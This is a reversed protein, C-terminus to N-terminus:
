PVATTTCSSSPIRWPSSISHNARTSSTVLSALTTSKGSGTPGTVLVLGRELDTFSKVSEPIGLSDFDPIEHPIPRLAVAVTGRQMSVNVRFRGVGPISHSTDLEHEAEFREQQTQPLIGFIMDRITQNSLRGYETLPRIAGNVRICPPMQATLHLDSAGQAVTEKLLDDIHLPLEELPSLSGTSLDSEGAGSLVKLRRDQTSTGADTPSISTGGALATMVMTPPSQEYGELAPDKISATANKGNSPDVADIRATPLPHINAEPQSNQPYIANIVKEVAEPDALVAKVPRNLLAELSAIDDRDPPEIFALVVAEDTLKYGIARYSRSIEAPVVALADSTPHEAYLDVSPLQALQSSIQLLAGPEVLGRKRLLLGLPISTAISEGLPGALVTESIDLASGLTEALRYSWGSKSSSSIM